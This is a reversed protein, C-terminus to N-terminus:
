IVAVSQMPVRILTLISNLEIRYMHEIKKGAIM